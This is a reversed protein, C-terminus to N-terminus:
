RVGLRRALAHWLTQVKSPPSANERLFGDLAADVKRPSLPDGIVESAGAKFWEVWASSDFRAALVLIPWRPSRNRLIQDLHPTSQTDVVLIGESTEGISNGAQREDNVVTCTFGRRKSAARIADV